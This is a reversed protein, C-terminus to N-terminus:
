QSSTLFLSPAVVNLYRFVKYVKFFAMNKGTVGDGNTAELVVSFSDVPQGAVNSIDFFFNASIAVDQVKNGSTFFTAAQTESLEDGDQNRLSWVYTMESVCNSGDEM